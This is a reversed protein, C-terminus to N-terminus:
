VKGSIQWEPRLIAFWAEDLAEGREVRSMRLVGEKTMGLKEM